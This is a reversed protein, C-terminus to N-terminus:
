NFFFPAAVGTVLGNDYYGNIKLMYIYTVCVAGCFQVTDSLNSFPQDNVLVTCTNERM